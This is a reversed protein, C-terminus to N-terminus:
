CCPSSAWPWSGTRWASSAWRNMRTHGLFERVVTLTRQAPDDTRTGAPVPQGLRMYRYIQLLARGFLAVGVVILVLSVIIAALQM